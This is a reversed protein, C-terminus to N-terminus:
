QDNRMKEFQRRMRQLDTEVIGLQANVDAKDRRRLYFWTGFTTFVPISLWM